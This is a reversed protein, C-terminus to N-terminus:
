PARRLGCTDPLRLRSPTSAIAWAALKQRAHDLSFFLSKNLLEDHMWSNFLEVFSNQIPKGLAIYHWDIRHDQAWGLIAVFIFEAGNDSVIM